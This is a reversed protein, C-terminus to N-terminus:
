MVSRFSPRQILTRRVLATWGTQSRANPDAGRQLFRRALQVSAGEWMPSFAEELLAAGYEPGGLNVDLGAELLADVIALRDAGGRPGHLPTGGADLVNVNAGAEPLVEVVALRGNRAALHLPTTGDHGTVNVDAGRRLLM